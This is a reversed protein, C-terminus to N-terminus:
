AFRSRRRRVLALGGVVSALGAAPEPIVTTRLDYIADGADTHIKLTAVYDDFGGGLFSLGFSVSDGAVLAATEFDILDYLAADKGDITYGTVNVVTGAEGNNTLSIVDDFTATTNRDITFAFTDGVIPPEEVADTDFLYASGSNRGNDNDDFRAGVIATTGSLGVSVGFQDNAAGDAATIKGIQLGTTTDFLYASGSSPDNDDDAVAGVLATTGSIAVSWGFADGAAGGRPTLKFTQRGTTTDFLYASGSTQGNDDDFYAGIVATTGSIGVSAGFFDGAEGDDATLKFTQNGTTTDFLYASGADAGKRNDDRHSGVIATTGSVGVSIGFHDNLAGDDPTLKFTLDGTTTNFLYASGSSSNSRDRRAGVIATTGSVAVAEGFDQDGGGATLRFTELGTTTDFLYAAESANGVIATNGSLGVSHGFLVGRRSPTLTATQEGTTTDFLYASGENNGRADNFVAGVIATTGSVGVSDGFRDDLAGDDSVLKFTEQAGAVSSVAFVALLAVSSAVRNGPNATLTHFRGSRGLMRSIVAHM